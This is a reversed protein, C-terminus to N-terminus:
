AEGTKRYGAAIMRHVVGHVSGFDDLEAGILEMAEDTLRQVESVLPEFENWHFIGIYGQADRVCIKGERGIKAAVVTVEEYDIVRRIKAGIFPLGEGDWEPAKPAAAFIPRYHTVGWWPHERVTVNMTPIGSGSVKVDCRADLPLPCEGGPFPIWGDTDAEVLEYEASLYHPNNGALHHEKTQKNIAYFMGTVESKPELTKTWDHGAPMVSPTAFAMRGASVWAGDERDLLPKYEHWSWRGHGDQALWRAWEPAATWRPKNIAREREALYEEYSFDNPANSHSPVKLYSGAGDVLRVKLTKATPWEALEMALKTLLEQRNM